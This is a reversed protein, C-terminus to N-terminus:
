SRFRTIAAPIFGLIVALLALRSIWRGWRLDAPEFDLTVTHGGPPIMVGRLITNVPYIPVEGGDIRAVWGAPYYIESVVLLARQETAVELRIHDSQWASKLIRGSGGILSDAGYEDSIYVVASPDYNPKMLQEIVQQASGGVAVQEPFWARELFNHYQYVVAPRYQGGSYLNGVLVEEFRPDSFRQQGVLYKVNLMRLIGGSRFGTTQMFHDYNALKAPHYGAISEIGFAAWRNDNQLGGLPLIRFKGPASTLLDIVPDSSLYRSVFARPQLVAARMSSPPPQIILRDVRGLDLVTLIALGALLWRRRLTGKLWLYGLAVAGGAVVLFWVADMRIMDLRLQKVQDAVQASVGRPAPLSGGMMGPLAFFIVTLLAVTGAAWLAYKQQVEPKLSKLRDLLSDLGLGALIVVSFQTLVLIMVPVRFKNFYPMFNFFLRYVFFNHGLSILYALGAAAALTWTLWTRKIAVTWVALALLIVGMYNPYDTFPMDGWYTVGGFGYFSPLIFTMTEGFSFSWMTAYEFGTGGGARGGRISSPRSNPVPSLVAAALALGVVMAAAFLLVFRITGAQSQQSDRWGKVVQVVFLLGALMLTYYAIQAHGRQLQLGVLLALLAAGAVTTRDYLRLQAYIVWPLYVLTMMQSGHGHVLMTNIYPMLMFGLGALLGAAFSGKLHKVLLYCGVGGFILHLIYIWFGPLGIAVIVSGIITPFYLHSINTFSHYRPMGSFITPLWTPEEGTQTKLAQLGQGLAAPALFDPGGFIYGGTLVKFYLGAPLALCLLLIILRPKSVADYWSKM